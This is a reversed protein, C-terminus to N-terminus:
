GQTWQRSALPTEAVCRGRGVRRRYLRPKFVVSPAFSFLRGGVPKVGTAPPNSLKTYNGFEHVVPTFGTPDAPQETTAHKYTEFGLDVPVLGASIETQTKPGHKYNAFRSDVPTFGTPNGCRM